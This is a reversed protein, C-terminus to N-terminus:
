SFLAVPNKLFAEKPAAAHKAAPSGSRVRPLGVSSNLPLAPGAKLYRIPNPTNALSMRFSGSGKSSQGVLMISSLVTSPMIETKSTCFRLPQFIISIAPKKGMDFPSPPQGTSKVLTVSWARRSRILLTKFSAWLRPSLTM